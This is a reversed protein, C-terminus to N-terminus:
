SDARGEELFANLRQEVMMPLMGQQICLIGEIVLHKYKKEFNSRFRLKGALPIFVFNALAIGYFTTLLAIAMSSGVSKPNAVYKLVQIIGIVTGLLGFTPSFTGMTIFTDSIMKHRSMTEAIHSEMVERIFTDSRGDSIMTLGKKIFPTERGFEDSEDLSEIGGSVVIESYRVMKKIIVEMNEIRPEFFLKIFAKLLNPIMKAPVNILTAVMTGGLVIVLANANIFLSVGTGQNVGFYLVAVSLGLGLITTIDLM